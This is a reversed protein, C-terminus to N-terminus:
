GIRLGTEPHFLHVEDARVSLDVRAGMVPPRRGDVRVVLPQKQGGHETTGHLYADAGLEEVLRVEVQLGTPQTSLEFSEPRIGVDATGAGALDTLRERALPVTLGGVRAGDATIPARLVNMAPSGIFAAVFVNAPREYLERPTAVQQLLGDRLVAVRHGMTMAETQDHTVYVTTTNLDRQLNAIEARTQVRLKADLNSLPEDMLFVRPSRVIARGMAVRQRQGGSLAKPKRDLYAVLDLMEAAKRVREAIETKSTGALKLAFGMNDGVSMHPYLAYNQFVMAIDRDKPAADSVDEGDIRIEGADVDELGALMRLATSKGSGSPGVLVLFEGDAIDLDLRDVAPTESGPYLRSAGVYAVTAM